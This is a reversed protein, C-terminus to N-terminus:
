YGQPSKFDGRDEIFETAFCYVFFSFALTGVVLWVTKFNVNLVHCLLYFGGMVFGVFLLTALIPFILHRM